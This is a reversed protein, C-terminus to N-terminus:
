RSSAGSGHPIRAETGHSMAEADSPSLCPRCNSPFNHNVM